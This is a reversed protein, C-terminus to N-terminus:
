INASTVKGQGTGDALTGNMAILLQATACGCCGVRDATVVPLRVDCHWSPGAM